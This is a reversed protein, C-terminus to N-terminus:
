EGAISCSEFAISPCAVTSYKWDIDNGVEVVHKMMDLYNGAATILSISRVRKGGSVLYGSSQLSFDTTVHDLGAHLGAFETIVLGEGMDECMQDLTKEGPLIQINMPSIGGFGNGTSETGMKRASKTNHLVSKVVGNEVLVKKRTPCGENDFAPRRVADPCFPDDVITIKDSFVQTGIKDTLPSIAKAVLDGNFMDTLVGFLSTMAKNKVIVKYSGSKLSSSGLKDLVKTCTEEVFADLDFQELDEVVKVNYGNKIEGHERAAVGAGIVQITVGDELDIGKSNMIARTSVSEDWEIDMTQFIREDYNMLKEELSALTKEILEQSSKKWIRGNDPVKQIEMPERVEVVEDSTIALAMEKMDRLVTDVNEDSEDETALKAMHGQYIGRLTLSNVRSTVFSEKTGQYWRVNKDKKCREFIEFSEFGAELAKEIWLRKNM